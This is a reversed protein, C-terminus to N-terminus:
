DWTRRFSNKREKNFKGTGAGGSGRMLISYVAILYGRLGRKELRFLGHFRLQQEYSKGEYSPSDYSCCNVM